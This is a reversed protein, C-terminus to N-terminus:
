ADTDCLMIDVIQGNLDIAPIPMAAADWAAMHAIVQDPITVCGLPCHEVQYALAYTYPM